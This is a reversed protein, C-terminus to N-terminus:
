NMRDRAKAQDQVCWFTDRATHLQKGRSVNTPALPPLIDIPEGAGGTATGSFVTTGALPWVSVPREATGSTDAHKHESEPANLRAGCCAGDARGADHQIRQEQDALRSVLLRGPKTRVRTDVSGRQIFSRLRRPVPFGAPASLGTRSAHTACSAWYEPVHVAAGVRSRGSAISRRCCFGHRRIDSPSTTATCWQEAVKAPYGHGGKEERARSQKARVRGKEPRAASERTEDERRRAESARGRVQNGALEEDLRRRKAM